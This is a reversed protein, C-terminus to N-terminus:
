PVPPPDGQRRAFVLPLINDALLLGVALVGGTLIMDSILTLGAVSEQQVLAHVGRFGM